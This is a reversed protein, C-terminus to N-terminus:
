WSSSQGTGLPQGDVCCGLVLLGTIAGAPSQWASPMGEENSSRVNVGILSLGEKGMAAAAKDFGIRYRVDAFGPVQAEDEFGITVAAQRAQTACGQVGISVIALVVTFIAVYKIQNEWSHYGGDL